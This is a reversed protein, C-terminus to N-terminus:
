SCAKLSVVIRPTDSHWKRITLEAIQADDVFFGVKSMSDIFHKVAGDVDPRTSKWSMAPTKASTRTHPYVFDIELSLPGTRPELPAHPRLLVAWTAADRQMKAGHFFRPKGRVVRVRKMQATTTPPPCNLIFTM